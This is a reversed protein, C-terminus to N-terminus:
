CCVNSYDTANSHSQPKVYDTSVSTVIENWMAHLTGLFIWVPKNKTKSFPIETHGTRKSCEKCDLRWVKRKLDFRCVVSTRLPGGCSAQVDLPDTPRRGRSEWQEKILWEVIESDHFIVLHSLDHTHHGQLLARGGQPKVDCTFEETPSSSQRDALPPSQETHVLAHGRETCPTHLASLTPTHQHIHPAAWTSHGWQM